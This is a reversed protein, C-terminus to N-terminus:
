PHPEGDMSLTVGCTAHLMKENGDHGDQNCENIEEEVMLARTKPHQKNGRLAFVM